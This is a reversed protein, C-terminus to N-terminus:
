PVNEEGPTSSSTAQKNQMSGAVFLVIWSGFVFLAVMLWGLFSEFNSQNSLKSELVGASYAWRGLLLIAVPFAVSLVRFKLKQEASLKLKGILYIPPFVFLAFVLLLVGIIM